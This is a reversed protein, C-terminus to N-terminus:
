SFLCSWDLNVDVKERLEQKRKIATMVEPEQSIQFEPGAWNRNAPEELSDAYNRTSISVLTSTLIM